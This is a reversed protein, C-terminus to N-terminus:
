QLVHVLDLFHDTVYLNLTDNQKKRRNQNQFQEL